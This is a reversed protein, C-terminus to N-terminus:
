IENSGRTPRKYYPFNHPLGPCLLLPGQLNAWHPITHVHLYTRIYSFHSSCTVYMHYVHSMCKILMHFIHSSHTVHMQHAHSICTIFTHSANSSCTVHMHRAHSAKNVKWLPWGNGVIGVVSHRGVKLLLAPLLSFGACSQSSMMAIFCSFMDSPRYQISGLAPQIRSATWTNQLATVLSVHM